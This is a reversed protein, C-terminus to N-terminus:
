EECVECITTLWSEVVELMKTSLGRKKLFGLWADKIKRPNSHQLAMGYFGLAFAFVSLQYVDTMIPRLEQLEQITPELKELKELRTFLDWKPTEM